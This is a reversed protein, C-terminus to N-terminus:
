ASKRQIGNFHDMIERPITPPHNIAIMNNEAVALFKVHYNVAAKLSRVSYIGGPGFQSLALLQSEESVPNEGSNRDKLGKKIMPKSSEALSQPSIQSEIRM